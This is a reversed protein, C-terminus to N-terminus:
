QFLDIFLMHLHTINNPRQLYNKQSNTFCLIFLHRPSSQPIEDSSWHPMPDIERCSSATIARPAKILGAPRFCLEEDLLWVPPRSLRIPFPSAGSTVDFGAEWVQWGTYTHRQADSLVVALSLSFVNREQTIVGRWTGKKAAQCCLVSDINQGFQWYIFNCISSKNM